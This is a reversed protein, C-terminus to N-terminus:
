PLSQSHGTPGSLRREMEKVLLDFEIRCRSRALDFQAKAEAFSVGDQTSMNYAIARMRDLADAAQTFWYFHQESAAKVRNDRIEQMGIEFCIPCEDAAAGHECAPLPDADKYRDTSMRRCGARHSLASQQDSKTTALANAKPMKITATPM